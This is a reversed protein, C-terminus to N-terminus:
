LKAMTVTMASISTKTEEVSLKLMMTTVKEVSPAHHIAHGAWGVGFTARNEGCPSAPLGLQWTMHDRAESTAVDMESM